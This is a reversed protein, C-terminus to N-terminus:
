SIFGRSKNLLLTVPTFRGRLPGLLLLLPPFSPPLTSHPSGSGVAQTIPKVRTLPFGFGQVALDDLPHGRAWSSGDTPGEGGARGDSRPWVNFRPNSLKTRSVPCSPSSPPSLTSNSGTSSTAPTSFSSVCSASASWWCCSTSCRRCWRCGCSAQLCSM